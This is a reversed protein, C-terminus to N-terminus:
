LDRELDAILKRRDRRGRIQRTNLEQGAIRWSGDRKRLAFTRRAGVPLDESGYIGIVQLTISRLPLDSLDGAASTRALAQRALSGFSGLDRREGSGLPGQRTWRGDDEVIRGDGDRIDTVVRVTTQSQTELTVLVSAVYVAGASMNSLFCRADLGDGAGRTILLTARLQRRYSNVFVQLYVVWVLLTGISTLATIIERHEAIWQVDNERLNGCESPSPGM